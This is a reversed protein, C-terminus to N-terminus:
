LAQPAGADNSGSFSKKSCRRFEKAGGRDTEMPFATM